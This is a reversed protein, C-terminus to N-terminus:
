KNGHNSLLANKKLDDLNMIPTPLDKDNTTTDTRERYGHNNSLILKAITPNYDGSLGKEMVVKAQKSRLENLANSFEEHEAEWEYLTTKNVRLEFALGEISPLNVRIRKEYSNSTSGVTKNYDYEEDECREIYALTKSLMEESYKTPRGVPAPTFYMPQGPM